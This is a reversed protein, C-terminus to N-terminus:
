VVSKRDSKRSASVMDVPFLARLPTSAHDLELYFAELMRYINEEGMVAFIERSPGPIEGPRIPPVFLADSM